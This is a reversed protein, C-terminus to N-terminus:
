WKCAGAEKWVAPSTSIARVAPFRATTLARLGLPAGLAARALM